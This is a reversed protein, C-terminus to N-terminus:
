VGMKIRSRLRRSMGFATAAGILPLPGPVAAPAAIEEVTLQDIQFLGYSDADISTVQIPLNAAAIFQSSFQVIGEGGDSPNIQVSSLAGQAYTTTSDEADEAYSVNYNLLKVNKNFTMEYNLYSEIESLEIEPSHDM